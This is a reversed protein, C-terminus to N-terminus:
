RRLLKSASEAAPAAFGAGCQERLWEGKDSPDLYTVIGRSAASNPSGVNKAAFELKTWTPAEAKPIAIAELRKPPHLQPWRGDDEYASLGVFIPSSIRSRLMAPCVVATKEGPEVRCVVPGGVAKNLHDCGDATLVLKVPIEGLGLVSVIAKPFGQWNGTSSLLAFLGVGICILLLFFVNKIPAWAVMLNLSYCSLMWFLMGTFFDFSTRDRPFLVWFTLLAFYAALVWLYGFWALKLFREVKVWKTKTMEVFDVVPSPGFRAVMVALLLMLAFPFLMGATSLKGNPELFSYAALAIFGALGPVILFLITWGASLGAISRKQGRLALGAFFACMTLAAAIAFGVIAVAMPIAGFSALDLDPTEGLQCFFMLLILGGVVTVLTAATAIPRELVQKLWWQIPAEIKEARHRRSPKKDEEM